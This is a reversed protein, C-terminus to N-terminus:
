VASDARTADAAASANASRVLEISGGAAEIKQRASKSVANVVVTLKKSLNGTGLVKVGGRQSSRTGFGAAALAAADVRAGSDFRDLTSLDIVNFRNLGLVRKRSRFGLKPIRRILPMQGGEFGPNITGGSRATQGKGGRGCTKGAGSSEGRGVRRATKRSGKVPALKSLDM